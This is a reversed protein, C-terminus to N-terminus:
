LWGEVGLREACQGCREGPHVARIWDRGQDPEDVPGPRYPCVIEGDTIRVAHIRALAKLRTHPGLDSIDGPHSKKELLSSYEM